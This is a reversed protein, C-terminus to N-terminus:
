LDAIEAVLARLALGRHSIANKERPGLEAATRTDGDPIFLPDYGFGGGGRPAEAIAGEFTGEGVFERGDPMVLVAVARYRSRRDSAGRLLRLLKANNTGDTAGAGAFRASRPGPAGHLADVEIGADEALVPLHVFRLANAAKLRANELYTTGTEVEGLFMPATVIELPTGSLIERAEALKGENSTALFVKV